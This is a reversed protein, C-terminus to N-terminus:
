ADDLDPWEIEDSTDGSDLEPLLERLKALLEVAPGIRSPNRKLVEILTAGPSVNVQTLNVQQVPADPDPEGRGTTELRVGLELLRTKDRVPLRKAEAESIASLAMAAKQQLLQGILVHRRRMDDRGKAAAERKQRDQELDWAMARGVWRWRRSLVAMWQPTRGFQQGVKALSRAYGLDRYACFAAYARLKEDPQREWPQPFAVDPATASSSPAALEVTRAARPTRDEDRDVLRVYSPRSGAAPEACFCGNDRAPPARERASYEFRGHDDAAGTGAIGTWQELSPSATGSSCMASTM